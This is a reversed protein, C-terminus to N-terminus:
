AQSTQAKGVSAGPPRMPGDDGTDPKVRVVPASPQGGNSLPPAGASMAATEQALEQELAKIQEALQLHKPKYTQSAVLEKHQSAAADQQIKLAIVQQNGAEVGLQQFWEKIAPLSDTDFQLRHVGDAFAMIVTGYPARLDISSRTM